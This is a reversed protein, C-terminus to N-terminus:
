RSPPQNPTDWAGGRNAVMERRRTHNFGRQPLYGLQFPHTHGRFQLQTKAEWHNSWQPQWGQIPYFFGLPLFTNDRWMGLQAFRGQNELIRGAINPSDFHVIICDGRISKDRRGIWNVRRVMIISRNLSVISGALSSNIVGDLVINKLQQYSEDSGQALPPVNTMVVVYPTAQPPLELNKQRSHPKKAPAM